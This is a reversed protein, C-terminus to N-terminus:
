LWNKKRVLERLKKDFFLRVVYNFRGCMCMLELNLKLIAFKEQKLIQALGRLVTYGLSLVLYLFRLFLSIASINRGHFIYYEVCAGENRMRKYFYKKTTHSSPIHHYVKADPVYGILLGNNWLKQNLGTEGNGLWIDGFSDPNFGGVSQLVSKRIAMNVGFFYVKNSLTFDSYLNMLSLIPFSKANGMFDTVWRPPPTEWIPYVPGGAAVMAAHKKFANEYALLWDPAFTADDDTFVLLDGQAVGIGMHRAYHLGLNPEPVYRVAIRAEKNFGDITTQISVDALNDVVIIDFHSLSQGQLSQLCSM